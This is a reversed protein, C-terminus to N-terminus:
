FKFEIGLVACADQLNTRTVVKALDVCYGEEDFIDKVEYDGTLICFAHIDAGHTGDMAYWADNIAQELASNNVVELEYDGLYDFGGGDWEVKYLLEQTNPEIITGAITGYIYQPDERTGIWTRVQTNPKLM